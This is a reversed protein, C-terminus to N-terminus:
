LWRGVWYRAEFIRADLWRLLSRWLPEMRRTPEGCRAPACTSTWHATGYLFHVGDHRLMHWRGTVPRRWIDM